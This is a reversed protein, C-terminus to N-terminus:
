HSTPWSRLSRPPAVKTAAKGVTEEVLGRLFESFRQKNGRAFETGPHAPDALEVAAKQFARGRFGPKEFWEKLSAFLTRLPSKTKKGLRETAL